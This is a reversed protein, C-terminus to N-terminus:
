RAYTIVMSSALEMMTDMGVDTGMDISNEDFVESIADTIAEMIREDGEIKELASLALINLIQPNM